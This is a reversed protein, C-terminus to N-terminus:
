QELARRLIIYNAHSWLLPSAVPGWRKVWLAHFEPANLHDAVQEALNGELDAQAEVWQLLAAAKERCGDPAGPQAACRTYYWGLWATLLAWEGGGYYTDKAYRHVGGDGRRLTREIEAVTAAMRAEGPEFVGYPVALGLLSADVAAQGPFKVFHGAHVFHEEIYAKIAGRVKGSETRQDRNEIGSERNEVRSEREEIEEYEALGGYIAALTHPHVHEAFEEWCDFNPRSWLGALYAASLRAADLWEAPLPQGALRAHQGLAWLWTGFGDLQFNAWEEKTGDEGDLTLRTHLVDTELLPEGSAAKLLARRVVDARRVIARAAWAHFRGASAHEGALDMAYAVFSADRFWTYHYTPFNPSAIYAGAPHQNALIIEISRRYLDM